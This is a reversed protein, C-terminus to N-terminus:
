SSGLECGIVTGDRARTEYKAWDPAETWDSAQSYLLVATYRM